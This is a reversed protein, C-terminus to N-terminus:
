VATKMEAQKNKTRLQKINIIMLISTGLAVVFLGGFVYLTKEYSGTKDRVWSVFLPGVVGATAWATLTYGHIASVQKTGFIDSIFAPVSAFAGGYCTMILFLVLQFL